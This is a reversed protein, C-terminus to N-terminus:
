QELSPKDAIAVNYSRPEKGGGFTPVYQFELEKDSLTVLAGAVSATKQGGTTDIVIDSAAYKEPKQPNDMTGPAVGKMFLGIVTQLTRTSDALKEFDVEASQPAPQNLNERTVRLIGIEDDKHAIPAWWLAFKEKGYCAMIAKSILPLQVFSGKEGKSGILVIHELEEARIHPHVARLIQCLNWRGTLELDPSCQGALANVTIGELKEPRTGLVHELTARKVEDSIAAGEPNRMEEDAKHGDLWRELFLLADRAFQEDKKKEEATEEESAKRPPVSSPSALLILVKRPTVAAQQKLTRFTEVKSRLVEAGFALALIGLLLLAPRLPMRTSAASAELAGQASSSAGHSLNSAGSHSSLSELYAHLDEGMWVTAMLVLTALVVVFAWLGKAVIDNRTHGSEWRRLEYLSVSLALIVVGLLLLWCVPGIHFRQDVSTYLAHNIWRYDLALTHTCLVAALLFVFLGAELRLRSFSLRKKM